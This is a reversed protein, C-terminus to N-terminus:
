LEANQIQSEPSLAFQEAAWELLNQKFDFEDMCGRSYLLLM